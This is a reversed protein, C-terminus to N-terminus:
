KKGRQVKESIWHFLVFALLTSGLVAYAILEIMDQATYVLTPDPNM